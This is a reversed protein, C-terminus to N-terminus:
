LLVIFNVLSQALTSLGSFIGIQTAVDVLVLFLLLFTGRTELFLRIRRYKEHALLALLLKSGDLPPVPILNFIGLLFSLYAGYSLVFALLNYPGLFPYLFRLLLAFCLGMLFNSIPGALAVFVSGWRRHRLNYPNFPVPKGWGFGITILTLFGLWDIHALPNLTLRRARKATLDGQWAAAFAHSAEHFSLTILFILVMAFFRLPDQFLVSFLNM